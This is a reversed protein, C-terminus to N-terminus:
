KDGFNVVNTKYIKPKDLKNGPNWLVRRLHKDRVVVHVSQYFKAIDKVIAVQHSRFGITVSLLDNLASPGKMMIDNLSNGQYKMSSNMFLRLPTTSHPGPKFTEVISIYNVPGKYSRAEEETVEEFVGRDINEQFQADYASLQGRKELRKTTSSMCAFAQGYNDVLIGPDEKYCYETTWRAKSVDLELKEEICELEKLEEYSIQSNKFSCEKCGKCTSCRKPVEM